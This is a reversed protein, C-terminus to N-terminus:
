ITWLLVLLGTLLLQGYILAEFYYGYLAPNPVAKWSLSGDDPVPFLPKLLFFCYLPGSFAMMLALSPLLKLAWGVILGFAWAALFAELLRRAAKEGFVSPLTPRGFIRDSQAALVDGMLALVFVPGFIAGATFLATLLQGRNPPFWAQPLATLIMLCGWGGALLLPGVLTRALSPKGEPRPMFLYILAGLWSLLWVAVAKPGILAAALAAALATALNLLALARRYKAFFITRDPDNFRLAHSLSAGRSQFFYRFLHLTIIQYFFFSFTIGQPRGSLIAEAALALAALGMSAFFGSLVMVRLLRPWFHIFGTKSRAAARLAQLIQATQWNSTSAGAAVGITAYQSLDFEELDSVSEVLVTPRGLRRAIDALRATNGSTKGGIVVVADVEQALQRMDRQRIETAQCITNKILAEPWRRLVAEEVEPWKDMDQTTQSVLLVRGAQPLRPVEEPGAIVQGQGAAHGMLGVVEPHERKGWIIVMRGSAAEGAVLRQVRKVRPCTADCIILGQKELQRLKEIEEPPLGHARIIVSGKKEGEWVKLGKAQLLALAPANHILEGHSYVKQGKISLREFATNMARRVGLCYGLTRALKIKM